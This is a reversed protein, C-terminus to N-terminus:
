RTAAPQSLSPEFVAAFDRAFDDISRSKRGMLNEYDSTTFDAQDNKFVDFYALYEDVVWPDMGLSLLGDRAAEQPLDVYSVTKGIASSLSNAVRHMSISEPGTITYDRGHHGATTLVEVAVEAADRLDMLGLKGNGYPLYFVSDSQITAAQGLLNQMYSHPYIITFNLGSTKVMSDVAAQSKGSRTKEIHANQILSHRVFHDVRAEIAADVLNKGQREINPGTAIASFVTDIGDFAATLSAPNELDGIVVEAGAERWPRGKEESRVLCRVHEGRELLAPVVLGGANGTAGIILFKKGTTSNGMDNESVTGVVIHARSIALM